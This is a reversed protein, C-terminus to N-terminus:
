RFLVLSWGGLVLFVGFMLDCYALLRSKPAQFNSKTQRKPTQSKADRQNREVLILKV